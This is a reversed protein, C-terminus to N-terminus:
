STRRLGDAGTSGIATYRAQPPPGHPGPRPPPADPAVTWHDSGTAPPPPFSPARTPVPASPATNARLPPEYPPAVEAPAAPREDPAPPVPAADGSPDTTLIATVAALLEERRLRAAMAWRPPNDACVADRAATAPDAVERLPALWPIWIVAAVNPELMHARDRVAAPAKEACDAVIVVVPAPDLTAAARTVAALQHAVSRCVLVDAAMGPEWVGADPAGLLGAVVTTGVGGAMGAILPPRMRTM